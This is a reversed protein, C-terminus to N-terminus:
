PRGGKWNLVIRCSAKDLSAKAHAATARRKARYRAQARCPSHPAPPSLSNQSSGPAPRRLAATAPTWRGGRWAKTDSGRRAHVSVGLEFM